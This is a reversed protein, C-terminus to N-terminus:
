EMSKEQEFLWCALIFPGTVLLQKPIPLMRTDYFCNLGEKGVPIAFNPDNEPTTKATDSLGIEEM